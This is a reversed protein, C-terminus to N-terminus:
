RVAQWKVSQRGRAARIVGRLTALNGLTFQGAARFPMGVPGDPAAGRLALGGAGYFGLQLVALKRYGPRSGLSLAGLLTGLLFFPLALRGFKHTVLRWRFSWPLTALESALLARGAGIRARRELESGTELPREVSLADPEYLVRGGARVIKCLLWLDDNIVELPFRGISSRRVALFGGFVGATSGSRSELSRLLHEYLDYVSGAEAWRGSVGAVEPDAFHRMAIRLSDPALPTHADTLLVIEGTAHDLGHNLATPKGHRPEQLLVTAEPLTQRALQALQPDGDSVVVVQLLDRPYNLAALSRLKEPLLDHERYTPVLVTVSPTIDASRPRRGPLTALLAPYGVLVWTAGAASTWTLAQRLEGTV